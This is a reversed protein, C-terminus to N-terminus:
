SPCMHQVYSPSICLPFTLIVSCSWCFFLTATQRGEIWAVGLTGAVDGESIRSEIRRCCCLLDVGTQAECWALPMTRVWLLWSRPRSTDRVSGVVSHSMVVQGPRAVGEGATRLCLPSCPCPDHDPSERVQLYRRKHAPMPDSQNNTVEFYVAVTTSPTLGGLSWAYTGGQAPLRPLRRRRNVGRGSWLFFRTSEETGGVPGVPSSVPWVALCSLPPERCSWAQGSPPPTAVIGLVM